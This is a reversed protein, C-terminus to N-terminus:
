QLFVPSKRVICVFNLIRFISDCQNCLQFATIRVAGQDNGRNLFHAVDLFIRRALHTCLIELINLVLAEHKDDILAMTRGESLHQRRNLLCERLRQKEAKGSRRDKRFVFLRHTGRRINETIFQM